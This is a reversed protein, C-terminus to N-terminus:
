ELFRTSGAVLDCEQLQIVKAVDPVEQDKTVTISQCTFVVRYCWSGGSQYFTMGTIDEDYNKLYCAYVMALEASSANTYGCQSVTRSDFQAFSCLSACLLAIIFFYKM